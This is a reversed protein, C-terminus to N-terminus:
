SIWDLKKDYVIWTGDQKKMNNNYAEIGIPSVYLISDFSIHNNEFDFNDVKLILGLNKMIGSSELRDIEDLSVEIVRMDYKEILNNLINEKSEKTLMRGFNSNFDIGIFEYQGLYKKEEKTILSELSIVYIDEIESLQHLLQKM